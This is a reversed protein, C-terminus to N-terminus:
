RTKFFFQGGINSCTRYSTSSLSLFLISVPFAHLDVLRMDLKSGQVPSLPNFPLFLSLSSLSCQFHWKTRLHVDVCWVWIVDWDESTMHCRLSRLGNLSSYSPDITQVVYKCSTTRHAAQIYYRKWHHGSSCLRPCSWLLHLLNALAAPWTM